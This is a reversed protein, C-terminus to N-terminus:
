DLHFIYDISTVIIAFSTELNSSTPNQWKWPIKNEGKAMKLHECLHHFWISRMCDKEHKLVSWFREFPKCKKVNGGRRQNAPWLYGTENHDGTTNNVAPASLHSVRISFIFNNRNWVELFFDSFIKKEFNVASLILISPLNWIRCYKKLPSYHAFTSDLQNEDWKRYFKM